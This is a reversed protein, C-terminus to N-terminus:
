SAKQASTDFFAQIMRDAEAREKEAEDRWDGIQAEATELLSAVEPHDIALMRLLHITKGYALTKGYATDERSWLAGLQM